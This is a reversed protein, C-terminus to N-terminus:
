KCIFFEFEFFKLYMFFCIGSIKANVCVELNLFILRVERNIGLFIFPEGWLALLSKLRNVRHFLM